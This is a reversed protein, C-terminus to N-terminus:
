FVMWATRGDPLRVPQCAVKVGDCMRALQARAKFAWERSLSMVKIPRKTSHPEPHAHGHCQENNVRSQLEVRLREIEVRLATNEDVLQSKTLKTNANM